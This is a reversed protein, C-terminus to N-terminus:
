SNTLINLNTLLNTNLYKKFISSLIVNIKAQSTSKELMLDMRLMKRWNKAKSKWNWCITSDLLTQNVSQVVKILKRRKQNAIKLCFGELNLNLTEMCLKSAAEKPTKSAGRRGIIPFTGSIKERPLTLAFEQRWTRHIKRSVSTCYNRLINRSKGKLFIIVLSFPNIRM